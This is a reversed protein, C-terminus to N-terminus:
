DLRLSAATAAAYGAQWLAFFAIWVALLDANLAVPLLLGFLGGAITTM